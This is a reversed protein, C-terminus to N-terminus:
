IRFWNLQVPQFVLFMWGFVSGNGNSNVLVSLFDYNLWISFFCVCFFCFKYLHCHCMFHSFGLSFWIWQLALWWPQCFFHLLNIPSFSQYFLKNNLSDVAQRVINLVNDIFLKPNLGNQNLKHCEGENRHIYGDSNHSFRHCWGLQSKCLSKLEWDGRQQLDPQRGGQFCMVKSKSVAMVLWVKIKLSGFIRWLFLNYTLLTFKLRNRMWLELIARTRNPGKVWGM